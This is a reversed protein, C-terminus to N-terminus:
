TQELAPAADRQAYTLTPDLFANSNTFLMWTPHISRAPYLVWVGFSVWNWAKPVILSEQPRIRPLLEREPESGFCFAKLAWALRQMWFSPSPFESFNLAELVARLFLLVLDLLSAPGWWLIIQLSRLRRRLIPMSSIQLWLLRFDEVKHDSSERLWRSTVVLHTVGKGFSGEEWWFFGLDESRRVWVKLNLPLKTLLCELYETQLDPQKRFILPSIAFLPRRLLSLTLFIVVPGLILSWLAFAIGVPLSLFGFGILGALISITLFALLSRVFSIGVHATPSMEILNTGAVQIRLPM